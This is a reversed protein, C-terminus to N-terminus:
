RFLYIKIFIQRNNHRPNPLPYFYIYFITPFNGVIGVRRSSDASSTGRTRWSRRTARSSSSLPPSPSPTRSATLSRWPSQHGRHSWTGYHGMDGGETHLKSVKVVMSCVTMLQDAGPGGGTPGSIQTVPVPWYICIKEIM